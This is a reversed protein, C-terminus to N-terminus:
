YTSIICSVEFHYFTGCFYAVRKKKGHKLRVKHKEFGFGSMALSLPNKFQIRTSELRWSM